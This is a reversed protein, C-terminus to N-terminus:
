CRSLAEIVLKYDITLKNPMYSTTAFNYFVLKM